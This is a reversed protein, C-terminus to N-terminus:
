NNISVHHPLHVWHAITTVFSEKKEHYHIKCFIFIQLLLKKTEGRVERKLRFSFDPLFDSFIM